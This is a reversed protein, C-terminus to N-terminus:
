EDAEENTLCDGIVTLAHKLDSAAIFGKKENDLFTFADILQKKDMKKNYFETFFKIFQDFNIKGESCEKIFDQLDDRPVYAGLGKCIEELKDIYIFGDRDSDFIDFVKKCEAIKEKQLSNTM